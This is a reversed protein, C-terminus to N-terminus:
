EDAAVGLLNNPAMLFSQFVSDEGGRTGSMAGIFRGGYVDV